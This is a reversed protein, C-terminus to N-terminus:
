NGQRKLHKGLSSHVGEWWRRFRSQSQQAKDVSTGSRTSPLSSYLDKSGRMGAEKLIKQIEFCKFDRSCVDCTELVDLTTYGIKNM